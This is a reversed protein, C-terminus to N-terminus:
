SRRCAVITRTDVAKRTTLRTPPASVNFAHNGRLRRLRNATGLKKAAHGTVSSAACNRAISTTPATTNTHSPARSAVAPM